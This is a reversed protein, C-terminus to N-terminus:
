SLKSVYYKETLNKGCEGAYSSHLGDNAFLLKLSFHTRNLQQELLGFIEPTKAQFTPGLVLIAHYKIVDRLTFIRM